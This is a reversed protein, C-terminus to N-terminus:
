RVIVIFIPQDFSWIGGTFVVKGDFLYDRVAKGTSKGLIQVTHTGKTLPTLFAAAVIYHTGAPVHIGTIPDDYADGLNVPGVGAVHDSGLSNVEGDIVIQAYINGLQQQSYFYNLVADRDNVDPFTGIVPKTDDSFLVPVYFMTGPSVEFTLNDRSFLIQFPTKPYTDPTHPGTNFFATAKAMDSLSYGRPKAPGPLINGGGALMVTPAITVAIILVLVSCIFTFSKSPNRKWRLPQTDAYGDQFERIEYALARRTDRSQVSSVRLISGCHSCKPKELLLM